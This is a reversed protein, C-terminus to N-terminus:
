RFESRCGKRACADPGRPRGSVPDNDACLREVLNQTEREFWAALPTGELHAEVEGSVSIWKTRGFIEISTSSARRRGEEIVGWGAVERTRGPRRWGARVKALRVETLEAVSVVLGVRERRDGFLLTLTPVPGALLQKPGHSYLVAPYTVLIGAVEASSTECPDCFERALARQISVLTGHPWRGPWGRMPSLESLGSFVVLMLILLGVLVRLRHSGTARPRM